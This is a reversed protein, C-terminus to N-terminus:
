STAEQPIVPEESEVVELWEIVKEKELEGDRNLWAGNADCCGVLVCHETRYCVHVFRTPLREAASIWRPRGMFGTLLAGKAFSITGIM